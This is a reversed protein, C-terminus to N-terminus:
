QGATLSCKTRTSHPAPISSNMYINAEAASILAPVNQRAKNYGLGEGRRHTRSLLDLIKPKSWGNVIRQDKKSGAIAKRFTGCYHEAELKSAALIKYKSPSKRLDRLARLIRLRPKGATEIEPVGASCLAKSWTGFQRLATAFFGSANECLGCLSSSAAGSVPIYRSSKITLGLKTNACLKQISVRRVYPKIGIVTFGLVKPISIPTICNFIVPM